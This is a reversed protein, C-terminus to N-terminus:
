VTKSTTTKTISKATNGSSPFPVGIRGAWHNARLTGGNGPFDLALLAMVLGRM